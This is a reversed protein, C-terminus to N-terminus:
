ASAAREYGWGWSDWGLRRERAFLEIYPGPSVSEVVDLAPPPKASHLPKGRADYRRKWAFWTTGVRQREPLRGRRAYLLFETSIGYAGGLGGGMPAKTWVLTTSYRFGWAEIVDFADRLFGNTTWLYLHADAAALGAVPLAAIEAVTMTSYPMPKSAGTADGFGERGVLAGAGKQPWPPDAVITAYPPSLEAFLEREVAAIEDLMGSATM